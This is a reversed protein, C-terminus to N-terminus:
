AQAAAIEILVRGPAVQEGVEAFVGRVTGSHPAHISHEMKMAELVMVLQGAIVRDGEGVALTAIRGNM